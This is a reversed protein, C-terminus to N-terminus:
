RRILLSQWPKSGSTQIFLGHDAVNPETEHARIVSSGMIWNIMCSNSCFLQGLRIVTSRGDFLVRLIGTNLM